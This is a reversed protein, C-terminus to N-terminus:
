QMNLYEKKEFIQNGETGMAWDQGRSLILLDEFWIHVVKKSFAWSFLEAKWCPTRYCKVPKKTGESSLNGTAWIQM